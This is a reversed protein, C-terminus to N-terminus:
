AALDLDRWQKLECAPIRAVVRAILAAVGLSGVSIAVLGAIEIVAPSRYAMLRLAGVAALAQVAIILVSYAAALAPRARRQTAAVIAEALQDYWVRSICTAYCNLVLLSMSARIGTQALDRGFLAFIGGLTALLGLSAAILLGFMLTLRLPGISGLCPEPIPVHMMREIRPVSEQLEVTIHDPSGLRRKAQEIAATEDRGHAREEDHAAELHSLLERRMRLKRSGGARVPRVIREVHIMLTRNM